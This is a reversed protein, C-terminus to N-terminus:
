TRKEVVSILGMRLPDKERCVPCNARLSANLLRNNLTGKIKQISTMADLCTWCILHGCALVAVREHSEELCIPCEQEINEINERGDCALQLLTLEGSGMFSFHHKNRMKDYLEFSALGWKQLKKCLKYLAMTNLAAFECLEKKDIDPTVRKGSCCHPLKRGRSLAWHRRFVADIQACNAFLLQDLEQRNSPLTKNKAAKKWSRYPITHERYEETNFDNLREHLHKAFKM